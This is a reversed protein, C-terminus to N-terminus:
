DKLVPDDAESWLDDPDLSALKKRVTLYADLLKPNTPREMTEAGATCLADAARKMLHRHPKLAHGTAETLLEDILPQFRNSM